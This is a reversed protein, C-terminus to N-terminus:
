LEMYMAIRPVRSWTQEQELAGQLFTPMARQEFENFGIRRYFPGNWVVDRFTTLGVYRSGQMRSWVIATEILRRGIGRRGFEPHVGVEKVWGWDGVADMLIFGMPEDHASVAVWLRKQAQAQELTSMPLTQQQEEEPLIDYSFLSAAAREIGAIAFLDDVQSLRIPYHGYEVMM